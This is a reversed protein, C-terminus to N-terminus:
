QNTLDLLIHSTGVPTSWKGQCHEHVKFTASLAIPVQMTRLQSPSGPAMSFACVCGRAHADM